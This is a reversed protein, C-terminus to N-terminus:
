LFSMSITFSYIIKFHSFGEKAYKLEFYKTSVEANNKKNQTTVKQKPAHRYKKSSISM